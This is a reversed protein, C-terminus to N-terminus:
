IAIRRRAFLRGGFVLAIGLAMLALTGPEPVSRTVSVNNIVPAKSSCYPFASGNDERYGSPGCAPQSNFYLDYQTTGVSFGVGLQDFLAGTMFLENDNYTPNSPLLGGIASTGSGDTRTGSISLIDYAGSSDLTGTTTLTGSASVGSGSYSFNWVISTANAACAALALSASFAIKALIRM